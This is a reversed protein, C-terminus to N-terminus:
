LCSTVNLLLVFMVCIDIMCGDAILLRRKLREEIGFHQVCFKAKDLRAITQSRLRANVRRM